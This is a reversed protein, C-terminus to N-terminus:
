RGRGATLLKPSKDGKPTEFGAIGDAQNASPPKGDEGAALERISQSLQTLPRTLQAVALWTAMGGFALWLVTVVGIWFGAAHFFVLLAITGAFLALLAAYLLFLRWRASFSM